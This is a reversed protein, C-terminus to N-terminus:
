LSGAAESVQSLIGETKVNPRSRAFRATLQRWRDSGLMLSGAAESAQSLIGETKVNPRSRAFRATLQRWRDSGLTSWAGPEARPHISARSLADGDRALQLYIGERCSCLPEHGHPSIHKTSRNRLQLRYKFSASSYVASDARREDDMAKRRTPLQGRSARRKTNVRRNPEAGFKESVRDRPGTGTGRVFPPTLLGMASASARGTERARASPAARCENARMLSTAGMGLRILTWRSENSHNRRSPSLSSNASIEGM